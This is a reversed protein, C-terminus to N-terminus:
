YKIVSRFRKQLFRNQDTDVVIIECFQFLEIKLFKIRISVQQNNM